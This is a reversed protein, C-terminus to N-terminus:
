DAKTVKRGRCNWLVALSMWIFTSIMLIGSLIVIYVFPEWLYRVIWLGGFTVVLSILPEAAVWAKWKQQEGTHLYLFGVLLFLSSLGLIHNHTTVLMDKAPKPFKMEQVQEAQEPNSGKYQTVVGQPTMHTTVELFVAGVLFGTLAVTMFVAILKRYHAPWSYLPPLLNM